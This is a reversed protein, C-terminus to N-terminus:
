IFIYHLSIDEMIILDTKFNNNRFYKSLNETIPSLNNLMKPLFKAIKEM